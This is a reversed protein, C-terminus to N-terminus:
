QMEIKEVELVCSNEDKLVKGIVNVESNIRSIKGNEFLVEIFGGTRNENEVLLHQYYFDRYAITMFNNPSFDLFGKLEVRQQNEQECVNAFSVAIGRKECSGGFSCIALFLLLHLYFKGRM